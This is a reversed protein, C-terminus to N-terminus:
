GEDSVLTKVDGRPKVMKWVPETIDRGDFLLFLLSSNPKKMAAMAFEKRLTVADARICRGFDVVAARKIEKADNLLRQGIDEVYSHFEDPINSCIDDISKGDRMMEWITKPSLNTVIRHLVVYDEQKLKVINNGSRIVYGEAGARDPAAIAEAFTKYEFVETVPGPWGIMGAATTPGIYAGSEKHVGGLLVLDDMDGYNCVIRNEPYVIELLFTWDGLGTLSDLVESYKEYLIGTAHIAQDSAFSGRTAVAYKGNPQRYLIGLSGDMKDTVEVPAGLPITSDVQGLNFFKRWPRAIVEGTTVDLVLGRCALTIKDWQNKYQVQETYNHVVLNPFEPHVQTRVLGDDVAKGLELLSFGLDTVYAM